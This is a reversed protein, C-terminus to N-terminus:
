VALTCSPTPACCPSVCRWCGGPRRAGARPGCSARSRRRRCARAGNWCCTHGAQVGRRSRDAATRRQRRSPAAAIGRAADGPAHCRCSRSPRAQTGRGPRRRRAGSAGRHGRRCAGHARGDLGRLEGRARPQRPHAAGSRIHRPGPHRGLDPRAAAPVGRRAGATCRAGAGQQVGAGCGRDDEAGPLERDAGGRGSRGAKFSAPCAPAHDRLRRGRGAVTRAIRRRGPCDPLRARGGPLIFPANISMSMRRGRGAPRPVESGSTRRRLGPSPISARRRRRRSRGRGRSCIVLTRAACPKPWCGRSGPGGARASAPRSPHPPPISAAPFCGTAASSPRSPCATCRAAPSAALWEHPGGGADRRRDRFAGRAQRAAAPGTCRRQIEPLACGAWRAGRFAARVAEALMSPPPSVYLKWMAAVPASRAARPRWFRWSGPPEAMAETWDRGATTRALREARDLHLGAGAGVAVPLRNAAYLRAALAGVPLERVEQGHRLAAISLRALRGSAAGEGFVSPARGFPDADVRRDAGIGALVASLSHGVNALEKIAAELREIARDTAEVTPPKTGARAARQQDAIADIQAKLQQKLVGLQAAPDAAHGGDDGAANAPTGTRRRAAM